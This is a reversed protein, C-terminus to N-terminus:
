WGLQFPYLPSTSLIPSLNTTTHSDGLLATLSQLDLAFTQDSATPLSEEIEAKKAAFAEGALTPFGPHVEELAACLFDLDERRAHIPDPAEAALAAPLLLAASLVVAATRRFIKMPSLEKESIPLPYCM